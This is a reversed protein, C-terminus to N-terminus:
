PAPGAPPAGTTRSWTRAPTRAPLRPDPGGRGARGAQGPLVDSPRGRVLMSRTASGPRWGGRRPWRPRTTRPRDPGGAPRRGARGAHAHHAAGAGRRRAAAPAAPGGVGRRVARGPRAEPAPGPRRRAADAGGGDPGQDAPDGPGRGRQHRRGPLPVRRGPGDFARAWSARRRRGPRRAAAGAGGLGAVLARLVRPLLRAHPGAAGPPGRAAPGPRRGAAPRAGPLALLARLEEAVAHAARTAAQEAAGPLPDHVFMVDADSGYGTEHGGFRGMAVVCSGPPCRAREGSSRPRGRRGARRRHHRGHDRDAGRETEEVTAVGSCTPPRPASCSGAACPASRAAAAEAASAHRRVVAAAETACRPRRVRRSSSTRGLM